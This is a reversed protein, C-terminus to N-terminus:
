NTRARWFADQTASLMSRLIPTPIARLTPDAHMAAVARELLGTRDNQEVLTKCAACVAWGGTSRSEVPYTDDPLNISVDAADFAGAVPRAGCFDCVAVVTHTELTHEDLKIVLTNEDSVARLREALADLNDNEM